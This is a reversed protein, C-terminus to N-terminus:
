HSVAFGYHKLALVIQDAYVTAGNYKRAFELRTSASLALAAPGAKSLGMGEILRAFTDRQDAANCLYDVISKNYGIHRSYLNFGMLQVAGYSTSYIMRATGFSCGPHAKQIAQCEFSDAFGQDMIPKAAFVKPEFRLAKQNQKTEVWSIIDFLTIIM